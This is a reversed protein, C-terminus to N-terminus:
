AKVPRPGDYSPSGRVSVAASITIQLGVKKGELERPEKIRSDENVLEDARIDM